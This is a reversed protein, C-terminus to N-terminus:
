EVVEPDTVMRRVVRTPAEQEVLDLLSERADRLSLHWVVFGYAHTALGNKDIGLWKGDEDKAQVAYEWHMEAITEALDPAAAVLPGDGAGIVGYEPDAAALQGRGGDTEVIPRNYVWPGPQAGERLEKAREPSIQTM